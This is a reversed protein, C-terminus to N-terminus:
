VSECASDTVCPPHLRTSGFASQVYIRRCGRQEAQACAQEIADDLCLRGAPILETIELSDGERQYLCVRSLNFAADLPSPYNTVEIAPFEEAPAPGFVVEIM